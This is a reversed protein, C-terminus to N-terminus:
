VASHAAGRLAGRLSAQPSPGPGGALDLALVGWTHPEPGRLGAGREGLVTINAAESSVNLTGIIGRCFYSGGHKRTAKPIHFEMNNYSFKQGRGDRFYQVKQVQVNKWSHCRLRIPEGEQFVWQPAQLLLWASPCLPVASGPPRSILVFGQSPAVPWWIGCSPSGPGQM